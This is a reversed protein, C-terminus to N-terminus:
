FRDYGLTLAVHTVTGVQDGAFYWRGDLAVNLRRAKTATSQEFPYWGVRLQGLPGDPNNLVGYGGGRGVFLRMPLAREAIVAAAFNGTYGSAGGIKGTGFSLHTHLYVAYLDNIQAGIRWDAGFLSASFGSSPGSGYEQGASISFGNRLRTGLEEPAPTPAPAPAAVTTSPSPPPEVVAVTHTDTDAIAITSSFGLCVLGM